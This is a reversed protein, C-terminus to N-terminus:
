SAKVQEGWLQLHALYMWGGLDRSPVCPGIVVAVVLTNEEGLFATLCPPSPPKYFSLGSIWPYCDGM